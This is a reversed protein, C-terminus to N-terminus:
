QATQHPGRSVAVGEPVLYKVGSIKGMKELYERHRVTFQAEQVRARVEAQRLENEQRARELSVEQLRIGTDFTVILMAVYAAIGGAIGLALFGTAIGQVNIASFYEEARASFPAISIRSLIRRQTLILATM